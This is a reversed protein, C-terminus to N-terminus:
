IKLKETKKRVAVIARVVEFGPSQWSEREPGRPKQAGSLFKFSAQWALEFGM